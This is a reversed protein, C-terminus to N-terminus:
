TVSALDTGPAILLQAARADEHDVREEAHRVGRMQAESADGRRTRDASTVYRVCRVRCSWKRELGLKRGVDHRTRRVEM